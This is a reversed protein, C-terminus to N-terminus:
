QNGGWNGVRGPLLSTLGMCSSDHVVENPMLPSPIARATQRAIARWPNAGFDTTTGTVPALQNISWIGCRAAARPLLSTAYVLSSTSFRRLTLASSTARGSRITTNRTPPSLPRSWTSPRRRSFIAFCGPASRGKSIPRLPHIMGDQRIERRSSGRFARAATTCVKRAM